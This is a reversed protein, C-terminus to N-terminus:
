TERGRLSRVREKAAAIEEASQAGILKIQASQKTGTRDDRASM